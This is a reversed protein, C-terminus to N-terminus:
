QRSHVKAKTAEDIELEPKPIVIASFEFHSLFNSSCLVYSITQLVKWFAWHSGSHMLPLIDSSLEIWSSKSRVVTVTRTINQLKELKKKKLNKLHPAGNWKEDVSVIRRILVAVMVIVYSRLETNSKKTACAKLDIFHSIYLILLRILLIRCDNSLGANPAWFRHQIPFKNSFYHFLHGVIQGVLVPVM